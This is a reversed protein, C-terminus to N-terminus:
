QYVQPTDAGANRRRNEGLRRHLDDHVDVDELLWARRPTQAIGPPTILGRAHPSRPTGPYSGFGAAAQGRQRTTSAELRHGAVCV